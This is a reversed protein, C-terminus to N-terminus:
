VDMDKITQLIKKAIKLRIMKSNPGISNFWKTFLADDNDMCIGAIAGFECKNCDTAPNSKGTKWRECFGCYHLLMRTEEPFISSYKIEYAILWKWRIIGLRKAEALSLQEEM